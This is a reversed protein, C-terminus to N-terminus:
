GPRDASFSSRRYDLPDCFDNLRDLAFNVAVFLGLLALLVTTMADM